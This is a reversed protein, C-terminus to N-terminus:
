ANKLRRLRHRRPAEQKQIHLKPIKSGPTLRFRPMKMRPFVRVLFAAVLIVLTGTLYNLLRVSYFALLLMAGLSIIFSHPVYRVGLDLLTTLALLLPLFFAIIQFISAQEWNLPPEVYFVVLLFCGAFFILFGIKKLLNNIRM